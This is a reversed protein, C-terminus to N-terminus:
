REAEEAGWDIKSPDSRGGANLNAQRLLRLLVEVSSPSNPDGPRPWDAPDYVITSGCGAGTGFRPQGDAGRGLAAGAACAAVLDDPLTWANPPDLPLEPKMIRVKHGLRDGENLTNEGASMHVLTGLDQVVNLQFRSDRAAITVRGRGIAFVERGDLFVRIAEGPRATYGPRESAPSM